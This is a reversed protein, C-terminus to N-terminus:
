RPEEKLATRPPRCGLKNLVKCDWCRAPHRRCQYIGAIYCRLSQRSVVVYPYVVFLYCFAGPVAWVLFGESLVTAGLVFRAELIVASELFFFDVALIVAIAPLCVVFVLMAVRTDHREAEQRNRDRKASAEATLQEPSM